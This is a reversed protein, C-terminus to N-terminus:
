RIEKGVRVHICTVVREAPLGVRQASARVADASTAEVVCLVIEDDPILISSVWSADDGPPLQEVASRLRPEDVGPWYCEVVYTQIV